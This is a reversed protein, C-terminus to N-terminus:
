KFTQLGKKDDNKLPIQLLRVFMGYFLSAYTGSKLILLYFGWKLNLGRSRLKTERKQKALGKKLKSCHKFRDCFKTKYSSGNCVQVSLIRIKSTVSDDTESSNRLFESTCKSLGLRNQFLCIGSNFKFFFM